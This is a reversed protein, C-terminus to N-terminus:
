GGDGFRRLWGVVGPFHDEPAEPATLMDVHGYDRRNGAARSLVRLEFERAGSEGILARVDDPHGLCRDGIGAFWLTPPVGSQRLGAAYDFGDGPDVWPGPRVWAVSQEHSRATEDDAGLGWARAPLYGYARSLVFGLRNWVLDIMLFKEGNFVRVCRKTGFFVMARVASARAPDRALVSLMLVGGWSHAVWFPVPRGTRARIAELMAPVDETIAETQGYRAARSIPPTSEGRGRLDGVFVEFGARALYPGLGRGSASYFIRGNEIAGHLMFVAPGGRATAIRRVHLRDGGSGVPVFISEQELDEGTGHRGGLAGRRSIPPSLNTM